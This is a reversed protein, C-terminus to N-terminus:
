AKAKWLKIGMSGFLAKIDLLKRGLRQGIEVFVSQIFKSLRQLAKTEM